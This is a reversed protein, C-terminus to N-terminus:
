VNLGPFPRLYAKKFHKMDPAYKSLKELFFTDFKTVKELMTKKEASNLELLKLLLFSELPDPPM